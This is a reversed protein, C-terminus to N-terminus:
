RERHQGFGERALADLRHLWSLRQSMPPLLLSDADPKWPRSLSQISMIQCGLEDDESSRGVKGLGLHRLGCGAM